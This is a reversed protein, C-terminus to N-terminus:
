HVACGSCRGSITTQQPGLTNYLMTSLPYKANGSATPVYEYPLSYTFIGQFGQSRVISVLASMQDQSTYPIFEGAPDAVYSGGWYSDWNQYGPQWRAPDAILDKYYLLSPGTTYAQLPGIPATVGGFVYSYFPLGIVMKAAPVGAQAFREWGRQCSGGGTWNQHYLADVYWTTGGPGGDQMDYCMLWVGGLQSYSAAAVTTDDTTDNMAVNLTKTGIATKLSAILSEYLADNGSLNSEWDVIVGDYGYTSVYGAINSVFTALLAPQTSDHFANPYSTNDCINFYAVKGAAHAASVFTTMNATSGISYLDITGNGNGSGDVGPVVAFHVVANYKAWPIASVPQTGSFSQEYYASLSQAMSSVALALLFLLSKM